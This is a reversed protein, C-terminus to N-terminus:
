PDGHGIAVKYALIKTHRHEQDCHYANYLPKRTALCYYNSSSLNHELELINCEQKPYSKIVPKQLLTEKTASSEM